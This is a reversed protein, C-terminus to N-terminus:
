ATKALHPEQPTFHKTREAKADDDLLCPRSFVYGQYWATSKVPSLVEMSKFCEIKEMILQIGNAKSYHIAKDLWNLDDTTQCAALDVKCYRWPFIELREQHAFERGFDDIAVQAGHAQLERLRSVLRSGSISSAEPIEIVLAGRIQSAVSAVERCFAAFFYDDELTAPSLNVFTPLATNLLTKSNVVLRMVEVDLAFWAERSRAAMFDGPSLLKSGLQLRSLVEAAVASGDQLHVSQSAIRLM